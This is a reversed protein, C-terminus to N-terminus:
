DEVKITLYLMCVTTSGSRVAWATSYTGNDKPAVMDVIITTSGDKAVDASLDVVDTNEQFKTGSVYAIDTNAAAWTDSSTNKVVWRGDFSDKPKFTAGYAPSQESITCKYSSTPTNSPTLTWPIFTATPPVPTNTPLALTATATPAPTDTPAPTNTPTVPTATPANLTLGAVVTQVAQTQIVAFTAQSDVTPVEEPAVVGGCGSLISAIALVALAKYALHKGFM